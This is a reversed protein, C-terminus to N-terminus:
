RRWNVPPTCYSDAPFPNPRSIPKKQWDLVIGIRNLDSADGYYIVSTIIPTDDAREFKVDTTHFTTADGFETGVSSTFQDASASLYSGSPAKEVGNTNFSQYPIDVSDMVAASGYINYDSTSSNIHLGRGLSAWITNGTYRPVPKRPFVQLGIVGANSADGAPSNSAYSSSKKNFTFKAATTSDVLWGKIRYRSYGKVIYGRSASGAPKGDTISLGDISVVFEADYMMDNVLELEYDSGPRGEIYVDGEHNYKTAIKNNVIVNIYYRSSINANPTYSM